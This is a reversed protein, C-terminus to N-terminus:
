PRLQYLNDRGMFAILLSLKMILEQYGQGSVVIGYKKQNYLMALALPWLGYWDGGFDRHLMDLM